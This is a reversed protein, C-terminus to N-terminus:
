SKLNSGTQIILILTIYMFNYLVNGYSFAAIIEYFGIRYRNFFFQRVLLLSGRIVRFGSMLLLSLLRSSSEVVSSIGSRESDIRLHSSNLFEPEDKMTFPYIAM